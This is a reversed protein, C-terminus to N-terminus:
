ATWSVNIKLLVPSSGWCLIHSYRYNMMPKDGKGTAFSYDVGYCADKWSRIYKSEEQVLLFKRRRQAVM